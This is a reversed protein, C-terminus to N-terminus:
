CVGLRNKYNQCDNWKILFEQCDSNNLDFCRSGNIEWYFSEQSCSDYDCFPQFFQNNFKYLILIIMGIIILIAILGLVISIIKEKNM